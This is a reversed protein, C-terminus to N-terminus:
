ISSRSMDPPHRTHEPEIGPLARRRRRLQPSWPRGVERSNSGVHVDHEVKLGIGEYRHHDRGCDRRRDLRVRDGNGCDRRVHVQGVNKEDAFLADFVGLICVYQGGVTFPYNDFSLCKGGPDFLTGRGVRGLAASTLVSKTGPWLLQHYNV